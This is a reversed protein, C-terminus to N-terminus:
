SLGAPIVRSIKFSLVYHGGEGVYDQAVTFSGTLNATLALLDNVHWDWFHHAILDNGNWSLIWATLDAAIAVISAIALAVPHATLLPMLATAIGAVAGVFRQAAQAEAEDWETLTLSATMALRVQDVNGTFMKLSGPPFDHRDGSDFDIEQTNGKHIHDGSVVYSLVTDDAGGEPDTENICVLSIPEISFHHIGVDYGVVNSPVGTVFGGLCRVRYSGGMMARPLRIEVETDSRKTPYLLLPKDGERADVLDWEFPGTHLNLGTLFVRDGAFQGPPSISDIRTPVPHHEVPARTELALALQNSVHTEGDVTRTVWVVPLWGALRATTLRVDLKGSSRAVIPMETVIAENDLYQVQSFARYTGAAATTLEPFLGELTIVDGWTYSGDPEEIDLLYPWPSQALQRLKLLRGLHALKPKRMEMLPSAPALEVPPPTVPPPTSSGIRAAATMRPVKRSLVLPARSTKSLPTATSAKLLEPPTVKARVAEPVKKYDSVFAALTARNVGHRPLVEAVIRDADDLDPAGSLYRDLLHVIAASLSPEAKSRGVARTLRQLPTGVPKKKSM